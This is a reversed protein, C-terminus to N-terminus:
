STHIIGTKWILFALTWFKFLNGGFVALDGNILWSRNESGWSVNKCELECPLVTLLTLPLCPHTWRHCTHMKLIQVYIWWPVWKRRCFGRVFFLYTQKIKWVWKMTFSFMCLTILFPIELVLSSFLWYAVSPIKANLYSVVFNIVTSFKSM